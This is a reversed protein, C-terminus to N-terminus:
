KVQVTYELLAEGKAPVSINWVANRYDAKKHLHNEKTIRWEGPVPEIVKVSIKNEKSNKIKIRYESEYRYKLLGQNSLKKFNTQTREATIDFANGLKLRITNNEPTHDISDEGAFQINKKSDEKYVRVIGKPLPMGLNNRKSNEIEVYVGIKPTVTLNLKTGIEQHPYRYYHAMGKLLFKKQCPVNSASLLAVQKTQNNKITTNRNLTYLHYEFMKEEVFSNESEPVAAMALNKRMVRSQQAPALHIDGAVLQLHADKYSTNSKNSITVCANLNLFDDKQSLKSVYDAKWTIGSSLYSLEVKQRKATKNHVLMTLTPSTRLNEPVYPFLLRGPIGTEIGNEMKLVIGNVTNLVEAEYINEKGTDPSEKIVNVKKGTFKKLLSEPTLLDFEFNQELVTLNCAKLLATEPMIKGSVDKFALIKEGKPLLISRQEKILALDQNYITIFINERDKDTTEIEKAPAGHASLVMFFLFATIVFILKKNM